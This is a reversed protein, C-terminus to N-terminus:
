GWDHLEGVQVELGEEKVEVARLNEEEERGLM